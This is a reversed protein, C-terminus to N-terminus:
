ELLDGLTLDGMVMTWHACDEIWRGFDENSGVFRMVMQKM